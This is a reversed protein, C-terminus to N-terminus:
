ILLTVTSLLLTSLKELSLFFNLKPDTGLSQAAVIECNPKFTVSSELNRDQSFRNVFQFVNALPIDSCGHGSCNMSEDAEEAHDGDHHCGHDHNNHAVEIMVHDNVSVCLVMRSASVNFSASLFIVVAILYLKNTM